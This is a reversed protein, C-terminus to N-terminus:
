CVNSVYRSPEEKNMNNMNDPIDYTNNGYPQPLQGKFKSKLFRLKWKREPLFFESPYRYWEKGMCLNVDDNIPHVINMVDATSLHRFVDLPAHYGLLLINILWDILQKFLYSHSVNFGVILVSKRM